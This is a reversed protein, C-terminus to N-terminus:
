DRMHTLHKNSTLVNDHQRTKRFQSIYLNLFIIGLSDELQSEIMLLNAEEARLSSPLMWNLSLETKYVVM